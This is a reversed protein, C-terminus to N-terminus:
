DNSGREGDEVEKKIWYRTGTHGYSCHEYAPCKEIDCSSINCLFAALESDSMARIRDGNTM